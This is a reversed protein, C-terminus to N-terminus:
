CNKRCFCLRLIPGGIMCIGVPYGLQVCQIRCTEDNVCSSNLNYDCTKGMSEQASFVFVFFFVFTFLNRTEM